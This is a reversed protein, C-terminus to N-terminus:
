ENKLSEVEIVSPIGGYIKKLQKYVKDGEFCEVWQGTEIGKNNVLPIKILKPKVANITKFLLFCVILVFIGIISFAIIKM